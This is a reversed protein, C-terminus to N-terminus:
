VRRYLGIRLEQPCRCTCFLITKLLFLDALDSESVSVTNKTRKRNGALSLVEDPYQKALLDSNAFWPGDFVLQISSFFCQILVVAVM